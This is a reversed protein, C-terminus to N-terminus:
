NLKKRKKLKTKLDILRFRNYRQIAVFALNISSNLIFFIFGVLPTQTLINLGIAIISYISNMRHNWEGRCTEYIFEDIYELSLSQLHRKSFGDKRIYQPLIDKWKNIKLKDKYWYGNKEWSKVQFCKRKHSFVKGNLTICFILSVFHWLACLILNILVANGFSLEKM